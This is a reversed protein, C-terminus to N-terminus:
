CGRDRIAQMAVSTSTSAVHPLRSIGDGLVKRYSAISATRVKLLYDFRGAIMHCEEVERLKRVAGNFAALADERTDSLKVEVFAIHELGLRAPNLVARFGEIYGTEILRKLRIQCPTKSLGVRQSLATISLRGDEVLAAIIKRDLTDIESNHHDNM